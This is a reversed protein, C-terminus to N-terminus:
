SEHDIFPELAILDSSSLLVTEPIKSFPIKDFPMEVETDLIPKIEQTFESIKSQPVTTQGSELDVEGFKHVLTQRAEELSQLEPVIKRILRSLQFAMQVPIDQKSFKVLSEESLKLQGITIKM